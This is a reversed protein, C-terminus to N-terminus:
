ISQVEIEDIDNDDSDPETVAASAEEASSVGNAAAKAAPGTQTAPAGGYRAKFRDATFTYALESRQVENGEKDTYPNGWRTTAGLQKGVLERLDVKAALGTIDKGTADMLINRFMWPDGSELQANVYLTDGIGAKSEADDKTVELVQLAFAVQRKGTNPGGKIAVNEAAAIELLVDQPEIQLPRGAGMKRERVNRADVQVINPDTGVKVTGKTATAM